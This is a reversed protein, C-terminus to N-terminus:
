KNAGLRAPRQFLLVLLLLLIGLAVLTYFGPVRGFGRGQVFPWLIEFLQYGAAAVGLWWAWAYRKWLGWTVLAAVLLAVWVTPRGLSHALASFSGTRQFHHVVGSALLAGYAAACCSALRLPLNVAM